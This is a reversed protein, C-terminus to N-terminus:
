DANLIVWESEPIRDGSKIVSDSPIPCRLPIRYFTTIHKDEDVITEQPVIANNRARCYYIPSNLITDKGLNFCGFCTKRKNM